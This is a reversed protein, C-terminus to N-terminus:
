FLNCILSGTVNCCRKNVDFEVSDKCCIDQVKYKLRYVGCGYDGFDICPNDTGDLDEQLLISGEPKDLLTWAGGEDEGVLFDRLCHTALRKYQDNPVHINQSREVGANITKQPPEVACSALFLIIIFYIHKM